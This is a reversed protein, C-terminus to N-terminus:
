IDFDRGKRIDTMFDEVEIKNDRWIGFLDHVKVKQESEIPVLKAKPTGRHTIIVDEGKSIVDFLQSINFRLDKATATM